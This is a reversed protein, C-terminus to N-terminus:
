PETWGMTTFLAMNNQTVDLRSHQVVVNKDSRVRIAYPVERPLELGGLNKPDDLRLHWTREAGVTVTVGKIPDRDEFYFDIQVRAPEDGTNLICLSEHGVYKGSGREPLYADPILWVRRGEGQAM